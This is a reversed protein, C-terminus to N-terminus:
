FRTMDAVSSPRFESKNEPTNDSERKNTEPTMTRGRKNQIVIRHIEKASHLNKQMVDMRGEIGGENFIRVREENRLRMELTFLRAELPTM